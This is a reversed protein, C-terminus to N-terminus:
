SHWSHTIQTVLNNYVHPLVIALASGVGNVPVQRHCVHQFLLLSRRDLHDQIKRPTEITRMRMIIKYRATDVLSAPLPSVPRGCHIRGAMDRRKALALELQMM